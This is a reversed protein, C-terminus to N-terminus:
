SLRKAIGCPRATRSSRVMTHSVNSSASSSTSNETANEPLPRASADKAAAAGRRPARQCYSPARTRAPPPRTSPRLLERAAARGDLDRAGVRQVQRVRHGDRERVNIRPGSFRLGAAGSTAGSAVTSASTDRAQARREPGVLPEARRAAALHGGTHFDVGRRHRRRSKAKWAPPLPDAGRPRAAPTAVPRPSTRRPQPAARSGRSTQKNM